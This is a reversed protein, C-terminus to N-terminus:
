SPQPTDEHVIICKSLELEELAWQLELKEEVVEPLMKAFWNAALEVFQYKRIFFLGVSVPKAYDPAYEELSPM